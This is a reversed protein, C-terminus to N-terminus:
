HNRAYFCIGNFSGTQKYLGKIGLCFAGWSARWIIYIVFLLAIVPFVSSTPQVFYVHTHKPNYLLPPHGSLLTHVSLLTYRSSLTGLLGSFLHHLCSYIRCVQGRKAEGAREGQRQWAERVGNCAQMGSVGTGAHGQRTGRCRLM